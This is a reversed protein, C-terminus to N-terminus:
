GRKIWADNLLWGELIVDVNNSVGKGWLFHITLNLSWENWESFLQKFFDHRFLKECLYLNIFFRLYFINAKSFCHTITEFSNWKWLTCQPIVGVRLIVVGEKKGLGRGKFRCGTWATKKLLGGRYQNNTVREGRFTPNKLSGM